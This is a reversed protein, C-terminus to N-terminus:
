PLNNLVCCSVMAVVPFVWSILLVRLSVCIRVRLVYLRILDFSEVGVTRFLLLGSVRSHTYSVGLRALFLEM